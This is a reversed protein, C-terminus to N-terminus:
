PRKKAGMIQHVRQFSIGIADAIQRVTLRQAARTILTARLATAQRLEAELREVDSQAVAVKALLELDRRTPERVGAVSSAAASM